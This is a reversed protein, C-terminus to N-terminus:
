TAAPGGGQLDHGVGWLCPVQRPFPRVAREVPLAEVAQAEAGDGVVVRRARDEHM